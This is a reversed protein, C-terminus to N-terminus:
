APRSVLADEHKAIFAGTALDFVLSRNMKKNFNRQSVSAYKKVCCLSDPHQVPEWGVLTRAM